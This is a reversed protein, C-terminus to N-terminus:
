RTNEKLDPERGILQKEEVTGKAISLKNEREM